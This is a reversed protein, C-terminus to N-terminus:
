LARIIRTAVGYPPMQRHATSSGLPSSLGVNAETSTGKLQYGHANSPANERAVYESASVNATAASESLEDSNAVFIRSAPLEAQTLAHTEEGGLDGLTRETLTHTVTHTGTGQSTLDIATGAVANALSTAFKITTTSARIAYYTTSATLGGPLGGDTSVEVAMGTVWKDTNSGVTFTDSGTSVSAAAVDETLTGTGAGITVRGRSDPLNFTTSGDGEGYTTGIVAFLKAYTTRSVASGDEALYGAPPTSGRFDLSTGIPVGSDNTNRTRLPGPLLRSLM